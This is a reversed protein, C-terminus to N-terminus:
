RVIQLRRGPPEQWADGGALAILPPGFRVDVLTGGRANVGLLEPDASWESDTRLGPLFLFIVVHLAAAAALAWAFAKRHQKRLEDARSRM